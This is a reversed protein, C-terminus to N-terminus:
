RFYRQRRRPELASPNGDVMAIGLIASLSMQPSRGIAGHCLYSSCQPLLVVHRASLALLVAFFFQTETAGVNPRLVTIPLDAPAAFSLDHRFDLLMAALLVVHLNIVLRPLLDVVSDLSFRSLPLIGWPPRSRDGKKKEM